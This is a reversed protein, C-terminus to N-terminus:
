CFLYSFLVLFISMCKIYVKLFCTIFIFVTIFFFM